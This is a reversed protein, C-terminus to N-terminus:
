GFSCNFLYTLYVRYSFRDALVYIHRCDALYYFYRAMPLPVFDVGSGGWPQCRLIRGVALMGGRYLGHWLFAQRTYTSCTPYYRCRAPLNPSIYRQYAGILVLITALIKHAIKNIVIHNIFFHNDNKM